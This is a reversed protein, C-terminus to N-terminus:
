LVNLIQEKIKELEDKMQIVLKQLNAENAKSGLTNIERGMEQAIFGLKKGPQQETEMTEIFYKLHQALRVKEENIDLKEVYLIMEQELRNMDATGKAILDELNKEIRARVKEVRGVEYRPVEALYSEIISIRQRLDSELAMGERKRYESLNAVAQDITEKVKMWEDEGLQPQEVTVTDPLPMIIRMFDTRDSQGFEDSLEKLQAYYGRIVDKNIVVVKEGTQTEVYISFDVKGRTLRSTLDSRIELEKEKYITPIRTGLDMQKSNLSKVEVTVKKNPLECVSKGYGTMSLIMTKSKIQKEVSAFKCIRV